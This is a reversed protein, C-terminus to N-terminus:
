YPELDDWDSCWGRHNDKSPAGNAGAEFCGDPSHRDWVVFAPPKHGAEYFTGLAGKPVDERNGKIRRRARVKDGPKLTRTLYAGGAQESSFRERPKFLGRSRTLTTPRGHAELPELHEWQVWFAHSAKDKPAGPFWAVSSGLDRDWIVFCPLSGPTEGYFVGEDGVKLLEYSVRARVRQLPKLTQKLYEIYKTDSRFDARKLVRAPEREEDQGQRASSSPQPTLATTSSFLEVLLPGTPLSIPLYSGRTREEGAEGESLLVDKTTAQYRYSNIGGADWRVKVWGDDDLEGQITGLKGAGGDQEGWKWDPGRKVRGRNLSTSRPSAKLSASLWRSLALSRLDGSMMAGGEAAVLESLSASWGSQEPLDVEAQAGSISKLVGVSSHSVNGWGFRPEELEPKVKVTQGVQLPADAEGLPASLGKLFVSLKAETDQVHGRLELDREALLAMKQARQELEQRDRAVADRYVGKLEASTLHPALIPEKIYPNVQKTAGFM